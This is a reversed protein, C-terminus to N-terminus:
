CAGDAGVGQNNNGVPIGICGNNIKEIDERRYLNFDPIHLATPHRKGCSKCTKKQLCGRAIHNTGFCSFCLKREKLFSKRDEVPKKIFDGTM